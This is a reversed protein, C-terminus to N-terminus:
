NRTREAEPGGDQLMTFVSIYADARGVAKALGYIDDQKLTATKDLEAQARKLLWEKLEKM